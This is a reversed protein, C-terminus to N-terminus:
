DQTVRTVHAQFAAQPGDPTDGLVHKKMELRAPKLRDPGLAEAMAEDLGTLDPSILYSSAQSPFTAVFEEASLGRPNCTIIPRATYLFDTAVSSIDSILVDANSLCDTLSLNEDATVLHGKGARRLITSIETIATLMSPRSIGSAPHPRFWVRVDPYDRLLRRVLRVGMRDLSSYSTQDYYGEFTPAYLVIPHEHDTPGIPLEAVQPRGIVAFREPPMDIGAAPYRDMAAQGAVWVEDVGRALNNASTAKDSDGHLLMVHKLRPDRQLQGNREGFALYFAVKISPLILREVDRPTPAYVVPHRTQELGALQSAERVLLLGNETLANLASLWQNAIYKSQGAGLSIYVLFSPALETLKEIVPRGMKAVDRRAAYAQWATWGAYLLATEAMAMGVTVGLLSDNTQAPAFEAIAGDVLAVLEILFFVVPTGAGRAYIRLHRLTASPQRVSAPYFVLVPATRSTWTALIPQMVWALQVALVVTVYTMAATASNALAGGFIAAAALLSRLLARLQPRLGVLDMLRSAPPDARTSLWEVLGSVTWAGLAIWPLHAWAAIFLVLMSLTFVTLNARGCWRALGLPVRGPWAARALEEWEPM